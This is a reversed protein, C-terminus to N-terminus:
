VWLSLRWEGGMGGYVGVIYKGVEDGCMCVWKGIGLVLAEM